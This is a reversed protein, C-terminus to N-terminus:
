TRDEAIQVAIDSIADEWRSLLREAVEDYDIYDGIKEIIAEDLADYDFAAKLLENLRTLTM